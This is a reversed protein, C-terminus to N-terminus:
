LITRATSAVEAARRLAPRKLAVLPAHIGANRLPQPTERLGDLIVFGYRQHREVAATGLVTHAYVDVNGLRELGARMLERGVGAGHWNPHVYWSDISGSGDDSMSVWIYGAVTGDATRAVLLGPDGSEAVESWDALKRPGMDNLLFRDLHEAAGPLDRYAVGSALVNARAIGPGDTAQARGITTPATEDASLRTGM